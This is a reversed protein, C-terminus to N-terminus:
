DAFEIEWLRDLPSTFPNIEEPLSESKIVNADYAYLVDRQYVPMEVALDLVYSMAQKYLASREAKDETARADDIVVSLQNLITNEYQYLAPSALMERYGWALTSTATSNKHYVQYM